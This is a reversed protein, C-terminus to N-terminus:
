NGTLGEAVSMLKDQVVGMLAEVTGAKLGKVKSLRRLAGRPEIMDDFMQAVAVAEGRTRVLELFGLGMAPPPSKLITYEDDDITFFPEREEHEPALKETSDIRIPGHRGPQYKTTPASM